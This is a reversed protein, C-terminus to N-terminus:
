MTDRNEPGTALASAYEGLPCNTFRVRVKIKCILSLGNIKSGKHTDEQNRDLSQHEEFM